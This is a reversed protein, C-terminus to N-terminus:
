RSLYRILDFGMAVQTRHNNSKEFLCVIGAWHQEAYRSAHACHGSAEFRLNAVDSYGARRAEEAHSDVDPAPVMQDASSYFYLRPVDLAIYASSNLRRRARAVVNLIANASRAYSAEGPCSDLVFARFATERHAPPLAAVVQAACQAGGNSFAHVVIGAGTLGPKQHSQLVHRAPNLRTQQAVDDTVYKTIHKPQAGVWTCLVILSPPSSLPPAPSPIPERLTNTLQLFAATAAPTDQGCEGHSGLSLTSMAAATLFRPGSWVAIRGAPVVPVLLCAKTSAKGVPPDDFSDFSLGPLRDPGSGDEDPVNRQRKALRATEEEKMNWEAMFNLPSPPNIPGHPSEGALVPRMKPQHTPLETPVSTRKLKQIGYLADERLIGVHVIFGEGGRLGEGAVEDPVRWVRFKEKFATLWGEFVQDSRLQQAIICVTKGEVDQLGEEEGGHTNSGKASNSTTTTTTDDSSSSQRAGERLRCADACAQVLPEILADNYICDCAIVADFSGGGPLLGAVEDTEWDLTKIQINSDGEGGEGGEASEAATAQTAGRKAKSKGKSKTANNTNSSKSKRTLSPLNSTINQRLLRLVYSQDTLTYSSVSPSLALAIVGSIGSGLELLTSSPTFISHTTFPNTPSSLWSAVLPTIKWLVAGTTGGGRTSSLITPSQHITLDRGAITLDISTASQDVFGLNQSPIPQSFLLFSEPPRIPTLSTPTPSPLFTLLLPLSSPFSRNTPFFLLLILLAVFSFKGEEADQIEDGLARLLSEVTM